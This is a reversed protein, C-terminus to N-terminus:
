FIIDPAVVAVCTAFGVVEAVVSFVAASVTAVAVVAVILAVPLLFLFLRLM